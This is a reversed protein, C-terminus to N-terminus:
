GKSILALDSKFELTGRGMLCPVSQVKYLYMPDSLDTFSGSALLLAISSSIKAEEADL